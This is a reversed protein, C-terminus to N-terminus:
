THIYTHIHIYTLLVCTYHTYSHRRTIGTVRGCGVTELAEAGGFAVIDALSVTNTRQLDKKIQLVVALAKELGKNEPCDMEYVISGDPGGSTTSFDYGLADNIALKLLDPAVSIDQLIANRLKQKIKNVTAIKLEKVGYVDTDFFVKANARGFRSDTMLGATLSALALSIIPKVRQALRSRETLLEFNPPGLDDNSKQSNLNSYINSIRRNGYLDIYKRNNNNIEAYHNARHKSSKTDILLSFNFRVVFM